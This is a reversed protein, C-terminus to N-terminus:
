CDGMWQNKKLKHTTILSLIFNGDTHYVYLAFFDVALIVCLQYLNSGGLYSVLCLNENNRILM